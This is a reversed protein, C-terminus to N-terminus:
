TFQQSALGLLTIAHRVRATVAATHVCMSTHAAAKDLITTIMLM